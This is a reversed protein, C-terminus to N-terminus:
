GWAGSIFIGKFGQVRSGPQVRVGFFANFPEFRFQVTCMGWRIRTETKRKGKGNGNGNGNGTMRGGGGNMAEVGPIEMCSFRFAWIAFARRWDGWDGRNRGYEYFPRRSGTGGRTVAGTGDDIGRVLFLFDGETEGRDKLEVGAGGGLFAMSSGGLFFGRGSAGYIELCFTFLQCGIFRPPM